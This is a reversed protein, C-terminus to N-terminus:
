LTVPYITKGQSQAIYRNLIAMYKEKNGKTNVTDKCYKYFIIFFVEIQIKQSLDIEMMVPESVPLNKCIMNTLNIAQNKILFPKNKVPNNQLLQEIFEFLKIPALGNFLNEEVLFKEKELAEIAENLLEQKHDFFYM